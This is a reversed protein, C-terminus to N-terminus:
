ILFMGRQIAVTIAHTRDSVNLKEYIVKLHAKITEESVGLEQAVQKNGRGFAILKLVAIERDSLPEDAIHLAIGNAVDRHIHRVGKSVLRIASLMETRLSNKLLYGTAGAKLARVAQADGAFTTLVLIRAKPSEVRISSIAEIGDIGPMQLDMLVVDPKLERFLAVAESGDAAEGVLTMDAQNELM